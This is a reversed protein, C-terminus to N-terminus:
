PIELVTIVLDKKLEERVFWQATLDSHFQQPANRDLLLSYISCMSTMHEM